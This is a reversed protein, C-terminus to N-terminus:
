TNYFDVLIDVQNPQKTGTGLFVGVTAPVPPARVGARPRAGVGSVAGAPLVAAPSHTDGRSFHELFPFFIRTRVKM